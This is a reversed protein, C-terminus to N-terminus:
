NCWQDRVKVKKDLNRNIKVSYIMGVAIFHQKNMYIVTMTCYSRIVLSDHYQNKLRKFSSSPVVLKISLVDSVGFSIIPTTYATSTTKVTSYLISSPSIPISTIHACLILPRPSNLKESFYPFFTNKLVFKKM